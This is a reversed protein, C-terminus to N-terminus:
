NFSSLWIFSLLFHLESFDFLFFFFIFTLKYFINCSSYIWIGVLFSNYCKFSPVSFYTFLKILFKSYYDVANPITFFHLQLFLWHRYIYQSQKWFPDYQWLSQAQKLQIFLSSVLVSLYLAINYNIYLFWLANLGLTITNSSISWFFSSSVFLYCM